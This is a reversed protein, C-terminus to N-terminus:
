RSATEGVAGIDTRSDLLDVRAQAIMTVCTRDRHGRRKVPQAGAAICEQEFIADILRRHAMFQRDFFELCGGIAEYRDGVFGPQSNCQVLIKHFM